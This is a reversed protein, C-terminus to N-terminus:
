ESPKRPIRVFNLHFQGMIFNLQESELVRSKANRISNMLTAYQKDAMAKSREMTPCRTIKM